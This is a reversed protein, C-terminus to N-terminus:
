PLLGAEAAMTFFRDMGSRMTDTLRYKLTKSLYRIATEEPWGHVPAAEIAIRRADAEGRDRAASLEAALASYDRDRPGCWAAFVFPLGTVYKWAAGLDVEFGYGAPADNVVKDGILLVAEIPDPGGSMPVLELDQSYLARWILRALIVSTHSEGDVHLRRIEEAPRQSFVRVTMTEGDSGICGDSVLELSERSRWYDVVPLLAVDCEGAALMAGLAAPVAPRLLVDERGTLFEYLPRANLYSVVGLTNTQTPSETAAPASQLSM